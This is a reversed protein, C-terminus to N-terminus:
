AHTSATPSRGFGTFNDLSRTEDVIADWPIEDSNRLDTLADLMDQDSRRAGTAQKSVMEAAVLEYFLFRASTPM